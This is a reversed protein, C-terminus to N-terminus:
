TRPPRRESIPRPQVYEVDISIRDSGLPTATYVVAVSLELNSLIALIGVTLPMDGSPAAGLLLEAIRCCDDMTASAPPLEIQDSGRGGAVAPERGVVAGSNVLPLM